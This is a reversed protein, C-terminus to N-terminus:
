LKSIRFSFWSGAFNWRVFFYVQGTNANTVPAGVDNLTQVFGSVTINNGQTIGIHSGLMRQIDDIQEGISRAILIEPHHEVFHSIFDIRNADSRRVVTMERGGHERHRQTFMDKNFLRHCMSEVFHFQHYPSSFLIAHYSLHAILSMRFRIIKLKLCPFLGADDFIYRRNGGVHIIRATPMREIRIHFIHRERFGNRSREVPICPQSSFEPVIVIVVIDVSLPAAPVIESHARQAVPAGMNDVRRM